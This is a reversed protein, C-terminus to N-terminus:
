TDREVPSESPVCKGTGIDRKLWDSEQIQRGVRLSPHLPHKLQKIQVYTTIILIIILYIISIIVICNM